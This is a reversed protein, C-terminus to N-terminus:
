FIASAFRPRYKRTVEHEEGLIRFIALVAKRAADDSFSRDERISGILRDLATDPDGSRWARIGEVYLRSATSDGDEPLEGHDLEYRHLVAVARDYYPDGDEFQSALSRSEEPDTALSAEALIVTARKRLDPDTDDSELVERVKLMATYADGKELAMEAVRVADRLASPLTEQLWRRIQPEALAGVFEGVVEGSVFMKVTPIGRIRFQVALDPQVETNVKVLTWADGAEKALSELTPSLFRCPACWEAWFDVVVPRVHSADIVDAQFDIPEKNVYM